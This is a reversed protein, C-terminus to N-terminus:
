TPRRRGPVLRARGKGKRRLLSPLLDGHHTSVVARHPCHRLPRQRSDGPHTNELATKLRRCPCRCGDRRSSMDWGTDMDRDIESESQGQQNGSLRRVMVIGSGNRRRPSARGRHRDSRDSGRPTGPGLDMRRRLQTISRRWRPKCSPTSRIGFPEPDLVQDLVPDWDMDPALPRGNQGGPRPLRYLCRPCRPYPPIHVASRTSRGPFATDSCRLSSIASGHNSTRRASGCLPSPPHSRPM